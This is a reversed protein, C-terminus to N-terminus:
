LLVVGKRHIQDIIPSDSNLELYKKLTVPIVEIRHDIRAAIRNLLAGEQLRDKGLDPSIVALDIDSESTATGNAQSGFLIILSARIGHKKLKHRLIIAMQKIQLIDM